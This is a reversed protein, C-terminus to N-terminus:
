IPIVRRKKGEHFNTEWNVLKITTSYFIYLFAITTEYFFGRFIYARGLALLYILLLLLKKGMDSVKLGGCTQKRGMDSM